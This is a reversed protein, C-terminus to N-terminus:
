FNILGPAKRTIVLLDAVNIGDVPPYQPKGNALPAVNARTEQGTNLSYLDLIASASADTPHIGTARM